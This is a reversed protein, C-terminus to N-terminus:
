KVKDKESKTIVVALMFALLALFSLHPVTIDFLFSLSGIVTPLTVAYMSVAVTQKYTWKENRFQSVLWVLGGVVIIHLLKAIITGVYAAALFILVLIAIVWPSTLQNFLEELTDKNFSYDPLDDFYRTESSGQNNDYFEVSSRTVLVGSQEPETLFDRVKHSEKSKTDIIVLYNADASHYTYPQDLNSVNLKGSKLEAEFEPVQTVVASRVLSLNRPLNGKLVLFVLFVISVLWSFIFFYSAASSLSDRQNKLWAFNFLSNYLSQFFSRM